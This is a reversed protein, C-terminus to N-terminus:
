ISEPRLRRSLFEMHTCILYVVLIIRPHSPQETMAPIARHLVTCKLKQKKSHSHAWILFFQRQFLKAHRTILRNVRLVHQAHERSSSHSQRFIYSTALRYPVRHPLPAHLTLGELSRDRAYQTLCRAMAISLFGFIQGHLFSDHPQCRCIM